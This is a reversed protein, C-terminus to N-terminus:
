VVEILLNMIENMRESVMAFTCDVLRLDLKLFNALYDIEFDLLDSCCLWISILFVVNLSILIRTRM